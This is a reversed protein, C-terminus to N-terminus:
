FSYLFSILVIQHRKYRAEKLQYIKSTWGHQLIYRYKTGKYLTGSYPYDVNQKDMWGTSPRQITWM